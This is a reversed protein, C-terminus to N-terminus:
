EIREVGVSRPAVEIFPASVTDLRHRLQWSPVTAMLEHYSDWAPAFKWGSVSPVSNMGASVVTRSRVLCCGTLKVYGSLVVAAAIPICGAASRFETSPLPLTGSNLPLICHAVQWSGCAPGDLPACRKKRANGLVGACVSVPVDQTYQWKYPLVVPSAFRAECCGAEETINRM